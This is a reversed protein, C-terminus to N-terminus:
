WYYTLIKEWDWLALCIRLSKVLIRHLVQTKGQSLFKHNFKVAFHTYWVPKSDQTTYKRIWLKLSESLWVVREVKLDSLKSIVWLSSGPMPKLKLLQSAICYIRNDFCPAQAPFSLGRDKSRKRLDCMKHLQSWHLSRLQLRQDKHYHSHFIPFSYCISQTAWRQCTRPCVLIWWWHCWRRRQQLRM